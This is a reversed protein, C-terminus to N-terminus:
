RSGLYAALAALEESGIGAAITTMAESRRDGSKFALMQGLFYGPQQGALRPIDAIGQAQAGHCAACATVQRSGIGQAFIREGLAAAKPSASNVAAARPAQAAYYQSLAAIQEDDLAGAMGWMFNQADADGRSHQRFAQLQEAIYSASQGALVPFRPMASVGRAGHCAACTGAAVREASAGVTTQAANVAGITLLSMPLMCAILIKMDVGSCVPWRAIASPSSQFRILGTIIVVCSTDSTQMTGPDVLRLGVRGTV